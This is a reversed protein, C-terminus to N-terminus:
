FGLILTFGLFTLIMLTLLAVLIIKKKTWRKEIPKLNRLYIRWRLFWILLGTFILLIGMAATILGMIHYLGWISNIVGKTVLYYIVSGLVTIAGGWILSHKVQKNFHKTTKTSDKEIQNLVKFDTKEKYSIIGFVTIPKLFNFLFFLMWYFHKM